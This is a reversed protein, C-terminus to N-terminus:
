RYNNKGIIRSYIFYIIYNILIFLVTCLIYPLFPDKDKPTEYNNCCVRIQGKQDFSLSTFLHSCFYKLDEDYDIKSFLKTVRGVSINTANKSFTFFGVKKLPTKYTEIEDKLYTNVLRYTKGTGPPGVIFKRM